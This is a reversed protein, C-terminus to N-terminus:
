MPIIMITKKTWSIMISSIIWINITKFFLIYSHFTTFGFDFTYWVDSGGLLSNALPYTGYKSWHLWIGWHSTPEWQYTTNPVTSSLPKTWLWIADSEKVNGAGLEKIHLVEPCYDTITCYTAIPKGPSRPVFDSPHFCWWCQTMGVFPERIALNMPGVYLVWASLVWTPFM